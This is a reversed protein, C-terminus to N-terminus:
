QNLLKSKQANFEEESLIGSEKLKALKTLEDAVSINEQLKQPEQPKQNDVRKGEDIIVSITNVFDQAMRIENQCMISDPAVPKRDVLTRCDFYTINLAPIEIDRISVKVSIKSILNETKTKGSLGGIIAGAGGAIVGGIIAGGVTRLTSKSAITEENVIYEVDMVQDFSIVKKFQPRLICIQKDVDNILLVLDGSIGLTRTTNFDRASNLLSTVKEQTVKRKNADNANLVMFVVFIIGIVVIIITTM